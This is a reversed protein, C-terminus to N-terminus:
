IKAREKQIQAENGLSEIDKQLNEISSKNEIIKKNTDDIEEKIRNIEADTSKFIESKQVFDLKLSEIQKKDKDFDENQSEQM